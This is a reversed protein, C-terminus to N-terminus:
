TEVTAVSFFRANTRRDRRVERIQGSSEMIEIVRLISTIPIREKAFAVIRQESIGSGPDTIRIFHVIEDMAASDANMAGAKFIDPMTREASALWELATLFDAETLTLDDRTDISAIMSLKYLHVRRRTIYHTLRPHGPVPPEGAKKWENVATRYEETVTFRGQLKSITKLDAILDDLRSPGTDAFDDVIIRQDSFVMIIRSTFGQGWAKEPMFGMLNQPTSGALINIQPALIKIKIDNTRREQSYPTTDYFASLGDIMEPEYKHMFAGLEDATIYMANYKIEGEPQRLITRKARELADVLSAFYVSVPAQIPGIDGLATCLHKVENIVRTKGVGPHAILFVYQNPYVPRTTRVYVKQELVASILSIASWRRFITPSALAETERIFAAIFSPCKRTM